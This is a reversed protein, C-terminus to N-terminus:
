FKTPKRALDNISYPKEAIKLESLFTERTPQGNSQQTQAGASTQSAAARHNEERSKM